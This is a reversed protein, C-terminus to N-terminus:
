GMLVEPKLTAIYPLNRYKQRWDLGYGVVFEDPIEFGVYALPVDIIRRAPKNLLTCVKLSAPGRTALSRLIYSLTLGTDVIGELVLVHRNTISEDLDKTIRVVGRVNPGYSTVGIFDVTVPLAIARMLDCVFPAAGRLVGLLHLDVGAYDRTIDAGLRAVAAQIQEAPILISQIDDHM